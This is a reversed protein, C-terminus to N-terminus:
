IENIYLYYIDYDNGTYVEVCDPSENNRWMYSKGNAVWNVQIGDLYDRYSVPTSGLKSTIQDIINQNTRLVNTNNFKM